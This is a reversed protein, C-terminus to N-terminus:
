DTLATPSQGVCSMYRPQLYCVASIYEAAAPTTASFAICDYTEGLDAPDIEFIVIKNAAAANLTYSTAATREVLTDDTATALNSWIKVVNTIATSGTPAVATAKLPQLVVANGNGDAYHIVLWAKHANKLSIYDSTIVAGAGVAPPTLEVVKLNEPLSFTSTM